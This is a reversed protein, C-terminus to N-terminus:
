LWARSWGAAEGVAEVTTVAVSSFQATREATVTADPFRAMRGATVVVTDDVQLLKAFGRGREKGNGRYIGNQQTEM